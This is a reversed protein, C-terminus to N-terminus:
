KSYDTNNYLILNIICATSFFLFLILYALYISLIYVYNHCVCPNFVNICFTSAFAVSVIAIVLLEKYIM